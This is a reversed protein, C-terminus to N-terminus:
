IKVLLIKSNKMRLKVELPQTFFISSFLSSLISILWKQVKLDGFQIGRAIIFFISLGVLLISLGYAIFIWWWPLTRKMKKPNPPM